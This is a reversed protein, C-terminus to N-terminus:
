LGGDSLQRTKECTPEEQPNAARRCFKLCVITRHLQKRMKPWVGWAVQLRSSLVANTQICAMMSINQGDQGRLIVIAIAGPKYPFTEEHTHWSLKRLEQAQYDSIQWFFTLPYLKTELRKEQITERLWTAAFATCSTASFMHLAKFATSAGSRWHAPSFGIKTVLTLISLLVQPLQQCPGECGM